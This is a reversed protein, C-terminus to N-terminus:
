GDIEVDSNYSVAFNEQALQNVHQEVLLRMTGFKRPVINEHIEHNSKLDHLKGECFNLISMTPMAIHQATCRARATALM